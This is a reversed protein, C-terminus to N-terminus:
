VAHYWLRGLRVCSSLGGLVVRVLGFILLVTVYCVVSSIVRRILNLPCEFQPVVLRRCRVVM